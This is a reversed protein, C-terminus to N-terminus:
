GADEYETFNGNPLTLTLRGNTIKGSLRKWGHDIHWSPADGWAYLVNAAGDPNVREIVAVNPVM